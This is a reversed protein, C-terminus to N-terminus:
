RRSRRRGQLLGWATARSSRLSTSAAPSSRLRSGAETGAATVRLGPAIASGGIRLPDPADCTVVKLEAIKQSGDKSVAVLVVTDRETVQPLPGQPQGESDYFIAFRRSGHHELHRVYLCGGGTKYKGLAPLMSAHTKLGGMMLYITLAAKRPSFGAQFWDGIQGSAYQYQLDGFGVIAAGWMKPEKKTAKKM